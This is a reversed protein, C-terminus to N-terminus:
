FGWLILSQLILSIQELAKNQPNSFGWLILSKLVPEKVIASAPHCHPSPGAYQAARRSFLRIKHSEKVIALRGQIPIFHLGQTNCM